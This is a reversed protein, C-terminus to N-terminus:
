NSQFDTLTVNRNGRGGGHAVAKASSSVPRARDRCFQRISDVNEKDLVSLPVMETAVRVMDTFEPRGTGTRTFASLRASKVVDELESGVLNDTVQVIEKWEDETFLGEPDNCGRKRLHISIIEKREEATPLDTYFIEDFRGKRLFEPPIGDIRNMTMVVFINTTKENLWTLVKGFIRRTVGSDGAADKAGSFMKDAEDWLVVAREMADISALMEDMNKESQGVLSGFVASVDCIVLPLSLPRAVAKGFLSKGTGPPGILVVGKLPDILNESAAPTFCVKREEIWDKINDFGGIDATHAIKNKHVYELGSNRKLIKAKEGEITELLDPSNFGQHNVVCLSLVNEADQAALGLLSDVIKDKQDDGCVIADRHEPNVTLAGEYVFNFATEMESRDPLPFMLETTTSKLMNPMEVSTGVIVVPCRHPAAGEEPPDGSLMQQEILLQWKQALVPDRLWIHFNRFIFIGESQVSSAIRDMAQAPNKKDTPSDDSFGNAIDWTYVSSRFLM